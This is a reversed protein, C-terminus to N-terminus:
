GLLKIIEKNIVKYGKNNLTVGDDTYDRNLENNSSIVSYIDLYEVKKEKALSKLKKNLSIINDNTINGSIISSNFSEINKNIPYVSEIFIVANPRNKQILDIIQGYNKIIDKDSMGSNLDLLGLEIFVVSPNYDYVMDKMNNLLQSTNYTSNGNNVYHYDLGFKEFSYRRTHFDGVFLYNDDIANSSKKDLVVIRSKTSYYFHSLKQGVFKSVFLLILIAACVASATLFMKKFFTVRELRKESDVENIEKVKKKKKNDGRGGLFSNDLSEEEEPTVDEIIHLKTLTNELNTKVDKKITNVKFPFSQSNRTLRSKSNYKYPKNKKM